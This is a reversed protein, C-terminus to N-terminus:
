EDLNYTGSYVNLINALSKIVCKDIWVKESLSDRTAAAAPPNPSRRYFGAFDIIYPRAVQHKAFYLNSGACGTNPIAIDWKDEHGNLAPNGGPDKVLKTPVLFIKSKHSESSSSGFVIRIGDYGTSDTFFRDLALVICSNVWYSTDLNDLPNGIEDIKYVAKFHGTMKKADSPKIILNGSGAAECFDTVILSDQKTYSTTDLSLKDEGILTNESKKNSSEEGNCSILLCVTLIYLVHVKIKKMFIIKLNLFKILGSFDTISRM